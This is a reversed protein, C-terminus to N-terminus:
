NPRSNLHSRERLEHLHYRLKSSKEAKAQLFKERDRGKHPGVKGNAPGLIISSLGVADQGSLDHPLPFRRFFRLAIPSKLRGFYTEYVSTYVDSLQLHLRNVLETRKKSLDEVAREAERIAQALQGFDNALPL